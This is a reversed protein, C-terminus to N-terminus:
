SRTGAPPLRHCRVLTALSIREPRAAYGNSDQRGVARVRAGGIRHRLRSRPRGGSNPGALIPACRLGVRGTILAIGCRARVTNAYLARACDFRAATENPSVASASRALSPVMLLSM